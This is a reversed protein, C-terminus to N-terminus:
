IKVKLTNNTKDMYYLGVPLNNVYLNISALINKSDDFFHYGTAASDLYSKLDLNYKNKFNKVLYAVALKNPCEKIASEVKNWATSATVFLSDQDKITEALRNPLTTFLPVTYYGHALQPKTLKSNLSYVYSVLNTISQSQWANFDTPKWGEVPQPANKRDANEKAEQDSKSEEATKKLGVKELIPKVVFFYAGIYLAIKTVINKNEETLKM